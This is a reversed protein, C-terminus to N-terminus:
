LAGEDKRDFKEVAVVFSGNRSKLDELVIRGDNRYTISLHDRSLDEKRVAIKLWGPARGIRITQGKIINRVEGPVNIEVRDENKRIEVPTGEGLILHIRGSEVPGFYYKYRQNPALKGYSIGEVTMIAELRATIKAMEEELETSSKGCDNDRHKDVALISARAAQCIEKRHFARLVWSKEILVVYARLAETEAKGTVLAPGIEALREQLVEEEDRVDEM